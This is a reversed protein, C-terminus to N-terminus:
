AHPPKRGWWRQSSTLIANMAELNRGECYGAIQVGLGKVAELIKSPFQDVYQTALNLSFGFKRLENIQRATEFSVLHQAEDIFVHVPPYDTIRRLDRKLIALVIQAMILQGKKPAEVELLDLLDALDFRDHELVVHACNRCLSKM